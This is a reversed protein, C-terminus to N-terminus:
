GRTMRERPPHPAAFPALAEEGLRQMEAYRPLKDAANDLDTVVYRAFDVLKKVDESVPVAAGCESATDLIQQAFKVLRERPARISVENGDREWFTLDCGTQYTFGDCNMKDGEDLAATIHRGHMNIQM